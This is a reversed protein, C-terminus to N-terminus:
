TPSTLEIRVPRVVDCYSNSSDAGIEYIPSRGNSESRHSWGLSSPQQPPLLESPLAGPLRGRLSHPEVGVQRVSAPNAWCRCSPWIGLGPRVSALSPAAVAPIADGVPFCRGGAARARGIYSLKTSCEGPVPSTEPEIGSKPEGDGSRCRFNDTSCPGTRSVVGAEALRNSDTIEVRLTSTRRAALYALRARTRRGALLPRM